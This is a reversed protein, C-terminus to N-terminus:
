PIAYIVSGITDAHCMLGIFSWILVYIRIIGAAPGNGKLDMGYEYSINLHAFGVCCRLLLCYCRRKVVGIGHGVSM